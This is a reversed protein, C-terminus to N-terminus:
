PSIVDRAFKIRKKWYLIQNVDHEIVGQSNTSHIVFLRGNKNQTILGVHDVKFSNGFFVLDGAKAKKINVDKGQKAQLRSSADLWVNHKKFVYGTFGSCDFGKPTKGAYRYKIGELGRAEKIINKRTSAIREEKNNSPAKISCNSLSSSIIFLFLLGLLSVLNKDIKYM